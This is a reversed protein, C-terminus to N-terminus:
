SVNRNALTYQIKNLQLCQESHTNPGFLSGVYMSTYIFMQILKFLNTVPKKM